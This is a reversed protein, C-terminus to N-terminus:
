RRTPGPHADWFACIRRHLGEKSEVHPPTGLYMTADTSTNYPVWQPTLLVGRLGSSNHPTALLAGDDSVDTAIATAAHNPDGTQAFQTWYTVMWQALQREEPTHYYTDAHWVYYLECGHCAGNQETPTAAKRGLLRTDSPNHAFYYLWVPASREAQVAGDVGSHSGWATTRPVMSLLRAHRRSPCTFMYDNLIQEAARWPDGFYSANPSGNWKPYLQKVEHLLSRNHDFVRDLFSVELWREFDESTINRLLPYTMSSTNTIFNGGENKNSGIIIPVNAVFGERLLRLPEHLFEVQDITPGWQSSDWTDDDPAKTGIAARALAATPAARLCDIRDRSSIASRCSYTGTDNRWHTHKAIEHYTRSSRSMPTYAWPLFNGSEMAAREFLGFSREAVLHMAVATGGSSEGFLLVKNPDGGFVEINQRIWQMGMRQDQLGFNGTSGDATFPQMETAGLFGFVNLRYQTTVVIMEDFGAAFMWHPDFLAGTGDAIASGSEYAGGHVYFMVPLGTKAAPHSANPRPTYVNLYLCDEVDDWSGTPYKLRPWRQTCMPKFQFAPLVKPRWPSKPVPPQFRLSGVPPEAFPIGRFARYVYPSGESSLTGQVAGLLPLDILTGDESASQLGRRDVTPMATAFAACLTHILLLLLLVALRDM